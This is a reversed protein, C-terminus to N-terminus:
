KDLSAVGDFDPPPAKAYKHCRELLARTPGDDPADAKLAELRSAAEDFRAERYLALAEQYREVTARKHADLGGKLALLEYVTVAETKGAVRVRDLERVEIHERALEYTRPGIMIVSGYAKNAGELRAALNMGDGIATYSFLQESGFNGVFNVASNVGIRTYVDPLGKARFEERMKDVEAKAALAGRCARVAHDDQRMPAGFLCVVADGIYKDLCGGEKLLAGSVRTLYTNLIRVLSRPDEKFRESFTSFGRIDSFFASIEVNEGDLRPLKRESIMQEVLKPEMFRSFAARVFETERNAVLHNFAVAAVSALLGAMSPLATLVHTGSSLFRGTVLHMGLLLAVPWFIELPLWRTTMLLVVSLLAVVLTLSVDVALPTRTIFRGSGLLTDLVAAQKMVGPVEARFSTAKIDGLGLATGGIVVVKGRIAESPLGSPQGNERRVWGDLVELLPVTHFREHLEGGGYDIAAGGDSDVAYTRTGVRLKGRALTVENADYLGAVVRLPLTPYTNVGDTYAFRTRRMFGDPDTETDVLGFGDVAGVLVPIPPVPRRRVHDHKESAPASPEGEFDPGELVPPEVGRMHIPYALAHAFQEPTVSALAKDDHTGGFEGGTDSPFSESTASSPLAEQPLSDDQASAVPAATRSPPPALASAPTATFDVRPLSQANANTSVGLFFPVRTDRLVEALALDTSEDSSREDMVADFVVARAGEAELQEVVRAWLNRSYPWSGFNLTYRENARIGDLSSQDIVVVSVNPSVGRGGTFRTLAQDYAGRELDHLWGGWWALTALATSLVAVGLMLLGHERWRLRIIKWTDGAM